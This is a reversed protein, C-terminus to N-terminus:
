KKSIRIISEYRGSLLPEDKDRSDMTCPCGLSEIFSAPLKKTDEEEYKKGGIVLLILGGQPVIRVINKKPLHITVEDMDNGSADKVIKRTVFQQVNKASDSTRDTEINIKNDPKSQTTIEETKKIDPFNGTGTKTDETFMNGKIGLLQKAFEFEADGNIKQEVTPIVTYDPIIGRDKYKYGAVAMTYKILPIRVVIKSNPLTMEPVLGGNDGYYGGGSEEGIFVAKTKYHIMSLCESTTSFSTGNMLVYLNGKYTPLLPKQKGLNAYRIVDFGGENNPKIMEKPPRMGAMPTYKFFEFTDKTMTLLAYYDFESGTLYSFLIRGYEDTGGGNDRLDLILNQIHNSDITKFSNELFKPFDMKKEKFEGKDFSGVKLYATKSKKDMKLALPSQNFLPYRKKRVSILSDYIMGQLKTEKTVTSGSPKYAIEYSESYGYLYYFHRTFWRTSQLLSYKHTVNKGDSSAITLYRKIFDNMSHGNISIIQAGLLDIQASYNKQIFIKGEYYYPQFPLATKGRDFSDMDSRSPTASTHGCGIAAIVRSLLLHFNSKNKIKILSAEAADFIKNMDAKSRYRYLGPHAEELAARFITIDEKLKDNPYSNTETKIQASASGFILLVLIQLTIKKM